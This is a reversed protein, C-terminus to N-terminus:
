RPIISVSSEIWCDESHNLDQYCKAKDALSGALRLAYQQIARNRPIALAYWDVDSLNLRRARPAHRSHRDYRSPNPGPHDLGPYLHNLM